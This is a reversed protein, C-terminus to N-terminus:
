KDIIIKVLYKIILYNQLNIYYDFDINNYIKCM